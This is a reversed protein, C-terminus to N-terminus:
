KVDVFNEHQFVDKQTLDLLDKGLNELISVDRM